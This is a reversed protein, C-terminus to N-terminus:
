FPLHLINLHELLIKIGLLVLIVGGLRESFAKYKTGFRSGLFVGAASFSFTIAGIFIVALVIDLNGICAFSVGAALADISTAVALPLMAKCAFSCGLEEEDGFSEKIMNFGIISLLVFAIWHDYNEILAQFNAGLLYGILPMLAQFFGFYFGATLCHRIKVKGVSLGKCMAVAFADMSLSVAILFLEWTSM